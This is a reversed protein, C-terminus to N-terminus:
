MGAAALDDRPAATATPDAITRFQGREVFCIPGILKVNQQSAIKTLAEFTANRAAVGRQHKGTQKNTENAEFQWGRPTATPDGWPVITLVYRDGYKADNEFDISTIGFQPGEAVTGDANLVTAALIDEKEDKTLWYDSATDFSIGLASLSLTADSTVTAQAPTPDKPAM